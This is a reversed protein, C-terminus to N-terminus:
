KCNFQKVTSKLADILTDISHNHLPNKSDDIPLLTECDGVAEDLLKSGIYSGELDTLPDKSYRWHQTLDKARQFTGGYRELTAKNLGAANFTFAGGSGSSNSVAASALGGGLSHGVFTVGPINRGAINGLSIANQYQYSSLGFNQPINVHTWDHLDDTGAFAIVYEKTEANHFLTASYGSNKNEFLLQPIQFAVAPDM